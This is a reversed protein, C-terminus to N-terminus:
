SSWSCFWTRFSATVLAAIVALGAIWAAVTLLARNEPTPDLPLAEALQGLLAPPSVALLTTMVVSEPLLAHACPPIAVMAVFLAMATSRTRSRMSAHAMSLLAGVCIVSLLLAINVAVTRPLSWTTVLRLPWVVVQLLVVIAVGDVLSQALPQQSPRGTLRLLPWAIGVGVGVLLFLMQITPGYSASQAQVPPNTGFLFIWSGFVWLATLMVLGRPIVLPIPAAIPVPIALPTARSQGVPQSPDHDSAEATM